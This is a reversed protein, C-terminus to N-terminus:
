RGEVAEGQCDEEKQSFFSFLLRILLLSMPLLMCYEARMDTPPTYKHLKYLIHLWKPEFGGRFQTSTPRAKNRYLDMTAKRVVVARYQARM